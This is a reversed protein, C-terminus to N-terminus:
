GFNRVRFNKLQVSDASFIQTKKLYIISTIHCNIVFFFFEEKCKLWSENWYTDVLQEVEGKKKKNASSLDEQQDLRHHYPEAPTRRREENATKISLALAKQLALDDSSSYYPDKPNSFKRPAHRTRTSTKKSFIKALLDEESSDTLTLPKAKKDFPPNVINKSSTATSTANPAEKLLFDTNPGYKVRKKQRSSGAQTHLNRSISVPLSTTVALPLEPPLDLPYKRQQPKYITSSYTTTIPSKGKLPRKSAYSSSTPSTLKIWVKLGKKSSTASVSKEAVRQRKKRDKHAKLIQQFTRRREFKLETEKSIVPPGSNQFPTAHVLFEKSGNTPTTPSKLTSSRRVKLSFKEILRQAPTSDVESKLANLRATPPRKWRELNADMFEKQREREDHLSASLERLHAVCREFQSLDSHMFRRQRYLRDLAFLTRSISNVTDLVPSTRLDIEVAEAEPIHRSKLLKTVKPIESGQSGTRQRVKEITESLVDKKTLSDAAAPKCNTTQLQNAPKCNTANPVPENEDDSTLDIITPNKSPFATTKKVEKHLTPMPTEQRQVHIQNSFNEWSPIAVDHMVNNVFSTLKPMATLNKQDESPVTTVPTALSKYDTVIPLVDNSHTTVLSPNQLIITDARKYPRIGNARACGITRIPLFVKVGEPHLSLPSTATQSSPQLHNSRIQHISLPKPLPSTTTTISSAWKNHIQTSQLTTSVNNNASIKVNVIKQQGIPQPTPKVSPPSFVPNNHTTITNKTTGNTPSVFVQGCLKHKGYERIKVSVAAAPFTIQNTQSTTPSKPTPDQTNVTKGTNVPGAVNIPSTTPILQILKGAANTSTSITFLHPIGSTVPFLKIFQQQKNKLLDSPKSVTANTTTSPTAKATVTGKQYTNSQNGTSNYSISSGEARVVMVDQTPKTEKPQVIISHISPYRTTSDAPPKPIQNTSTPKQQQSQSLSPSSLISDDDKVVIPRKSDLGETLLNSLPFKAPTVTVPETTASKTAPVRVVKLSDSPHNLVQIPGSLSASSLSLQINEKAGFHALNAIVTEPLQKSIVKNSETVKDSATSSNLFFAKKSDILQLSTTNNKVSAQQLTLIPPKNSIINGKLLITTPLTNIQNTIPKVKPLVTSPITETTIKSQASTTTVMKPTVNSMAVTANAEICSTLNIHTFESTVVNPRNSTQSTIVVSNIPKAIDAASMVTSTEISKSTVIKTTNTTVETSLTALSVTKGTIAAIEATNRSETSGSKNPALITDVGATESSTVHEQVEIIRNEHSLLEFSNENKPCYKEIKPNFATDTVYDKKIANDTNITIEVVGEDGSSQVGSLIKSSVADNRLPTKSQIALPLSTKSVTKLTTANIENTSSILDNAKHNPPSSTVPKQSSSVNTSDLHNTSDKIPTVSDTPIFTLNTCDMGHEGIGEPPHNMAFRFFTLILRYNQISLLIIHKYMCTKKM